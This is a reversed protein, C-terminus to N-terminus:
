IIDEKHLVMIDANEYNGTAAMKSLNKAARKEANKIAEKGIRISDRIPNESKSAVLMRIREELIEDAYVDIEYDKEILYDFVFGKLEAPRYEEPLHIRNNFMQNLETNDRLLRNIAKRDDELFILSRGAMAAILGQMKEVTERSLLGAREVILCCDMLSEQKEELNMRNLKEADVIAVKTAVLVQFRYLLKVIKKALETKGSCPGGTIILKDGRKHSDFIIDLSRIVQKRVSEIRAFNGLLDELRLAREYLMAELAGGEEPQYKSLTDSKLDVVHKTSFDGLYDQMYRIAEDEYVETNEEKMLTTLHKEEEDVRSFEDVVNALASSIAAEDFEAEAYEAEAVPERNQVYEEKDTAEEKVFSETTEAAEVATCEPEEMFEETVEASDEQSMDGALEEPYLEVDSEETEHVTEEQEEIDEVVQQVEQKAEQSIQEQYKRLTEMDVEGTHYARLVSAWEVYKGEGFWLIIDNCERICNEADGNKHYLKALEYAWREAYEETKWQELVAIQNELSEQQMKGIRFRYILRTPDKPAVKEYRDLYQLAEEPLGQKISLEVLQALARRSATREYIRLNTEKATEYEGMRYCIQAIMNLDQINRLKKLNLQCILAYADEDRGNEMHEKITALMRVTRYSEM